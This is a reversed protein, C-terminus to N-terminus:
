DQIEQRIRKFEKDLLRFAKVVDPDFHRGSERYIMQITEEHSFAERYCRISTLADYYDALAIIRASLPIDKGVLGEPYGTGDWKEHHYRALEVGMQLFQNEPFYKLVEALTDAGYISHKKIEEYEVPTVKGPKLLIADPVGVKGIDHLCAAQYLNDIFSPTLIDEYLGMERMQLALKKTFIRVREFHQGTGKDRSEALKALAFITAMQSATIIEVQKTVIEELQKNHYVLEERLKKLHIHAWVRALVEQEQFPKSVYDVGGAQFAKM